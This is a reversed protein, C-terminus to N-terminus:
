SAHRWGHRRIAALLTEGALLEMTLFALEGDEARHTGMDFIRVIHHSDITGAARAEGIAGRLVSQARPYEGRVYIYGTNAGMGVGAILAGKRFRRVEGRDALERLAQTM